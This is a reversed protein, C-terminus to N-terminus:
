FLSKTFKKIRRVAADSKTQIILDVDSKGLIFEGRAASGFLLIFDIDDEMSGVLGSVFEELFLEARQQDATKLNNTMNGSM